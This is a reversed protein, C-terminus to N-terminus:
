NAVVPVFLGLLYLINVIVGLSIAAIPGVALELVTNKEKKKLVELWLSWM